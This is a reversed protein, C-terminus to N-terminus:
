GQQGRSVGRLQGAGWPGACSTDCLVPCVGLLLWSGQAWEAAQGEGQKFNDLSRFEVLSNGYYYNTIYIRDDKAAPDKMWAGENRGYSHHETPSEVSELTGECEAEKVPHWLSSSSPKERGWAASEQLEKGTASEQRNLEAPGSPVCPQTGTGAM